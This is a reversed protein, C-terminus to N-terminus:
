SGESLRLHGHLVYAASDLRFGASEYMRVSARNAAQTGVVTAREAREAVAVLETVIAPGVGNGQYRPDVAILDIVVSPVPLDTHLYGLFAVVTGARSAVLCGAGRLGTALNRAWEGKIRDAAAAPFDPDAHFRSYRFARMAIDAIADVDRASVEHIAIDNSSAKLPLAAVSGRLGVDRRLVLATDVLRFGRRTLDEVRDLGRIDVKAAFFAPSDAPDFEVGVTAPTLMVNYCSIGTIRSLWPDVTCHLGSLDLATYSSAHASSM